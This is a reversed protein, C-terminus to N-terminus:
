GNSKEKRLQTHFYGRLFERVSAIDDTRYLTEPYRGGDEKIEYMHGPHETMRLACVNVSTKAGDVHASWGYPACEFIIRKNM